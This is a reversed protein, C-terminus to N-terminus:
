KQKITETFLSSLDVCQQARGQAILVRNAPAHVCQDRAENTYVEFAKMFAQWTEPAARSLRTAVAQLEDKPKPPTVSM